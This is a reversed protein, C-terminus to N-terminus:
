YYDGNVIEAFNYCNDTILQLQEKTVEHNILTFLKESPKTTLGLDVNYGIGKIGAVVPNSTDLSRIGRINHHRYYRFEKALACGFLHHPKSYNWYGESILRTICNQRGTVCRELRSEGYGTYDYLSLDFSFAIYDAKDSMYKYCDLIETWTKGQVVGIAAGPLGKYDKFFQEWKIITGEYGELVDPVVYFNPKIKECWHAFKEADFAERLEFISNDLLIEGYPVEKRYDNMFWDHYRENEELLHCLAYQYDNFYISDYLMSVPTEHSIKIKSM